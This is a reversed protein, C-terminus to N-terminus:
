DLILTPFWSYHFVIKIQKVCASTEVIEGCLFVYKHHSSVVTSPAPGCLFRKMLLVTKTPTIILSDVVGRTTTIQLILNNPKFKM